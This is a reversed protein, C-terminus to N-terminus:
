DSRDVVRLQTGPAVEDPLSGSALEIVYRSRTVFRSLRRQKMARVVHRVRWDRGVFVVDIPYSMRFTHVQLAPSIVLAEGDKPPPAGILGRTREALTRAWRVERAIIRGSSEVVIREPM